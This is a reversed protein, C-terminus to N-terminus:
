PEDEDGGSMLVDAYIRDADRLARSPTWFYPHPPKLLYITDGRYAIVERSALADNLSEAGVDSLRVLIDHDEARQVGISDTESPKISIGAFANAGILCDVAFAKGFSQGLSRQLVASYIRLSEDTMPGFGVSQLGHRFYDWETHLADEILLREVHDVGFWDLAVSDVDPGDVERSSLSELDELTFGSDFIASPVPLALIEAEELEGREVMWRRSTMFLYYASVSSCLCLCVACLLPLDEPPAHIGIYSHSFAADQLTVAALLGQGARPSQKIIIHPGKYAGRSGLRYFLESKTPSLTRTDLVYRGFELDSVLPLKGIQPDYKRTKDRNGEIFGEGWTWHRSEAIERLTPFHSLREIFDMDRSSGWMAIKWILDNEALKSQPIISVESRRIPIEWGDRATHTPKLACYVVQSPPEQTASSRPSFTIATSPAVSHLFLAFRMLSLDVVSHLRIRALFERRFAQNPGSRNFQFGKSPVLLCVRGDARCDALAKWLFAQASQKDGIPLSKERVFALGEPTLNSKWPPNGIVIDFQEPFQTAFFDKAILNHGRLRPFRVSQWISKPELYDCMVLYLSLAAVRVAETDIDVGFISGTLIAALEEPLLRRGLDESRSEILRRYAEVLFAGSGCAPDLLKPTRLGRGWPLVQDMLFDVLIPPTFFSGTEKPKREDDQLFSEYVASLTQIPIVEFSYFPWLAYQRRALDVDGSLFQRLYALHDPRIAEWESDEVPFVDGNFHRGLYVFLNHIADRDAVLDNFCEAHRAFDRFFDKPFVTGGANDRRQELYSAFISRGVLSHIVPYPLGKEHLTARVERLNALLMQDVRHNPRFKLRHRHWLDSSLLSDRRYERLDSAMLSGAVALRGWDLLAPEPDWFGKKSKIDGPEYASYIRVEGPLILMLLPADSLNWALRHAESIRSPEASELSRFYVLPITKGTPDTTFFIADAGLKKRAQEWVSKQYAGSVSSGSTVLSPMGAYGLDSLVGELLSDKEM